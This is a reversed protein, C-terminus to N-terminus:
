SISGGGGSRQSSIPLRVTFAAGAGVGPSQVTISGRHALVLARCIALGLGMGGFREQIETSGQEFADFILSIKECDIGIGTDAVIIQVFDTPVNATSVDIRGGQPTFKIANRLLNWFVQQLRMADGMVIPAVARLHVALQQQKEDADIQCVRVASSLPEHVDVPEYQLSMKGANIRTLDVLDDILRIETQVYQRITQVDRRLAPPLNPDSQLMDAAMVVPSLPTRLEHSVMALFQTKARSASEAALRARRTAAHLAGALVSVVSFVLLRPVHDEAAAMSFRHGRMLLYATAAGSLFTALLGPGIGGYWACLLVAAFFLPTLGADGFRFLLHTLVTAVGVAVVAMGYRLLVQGGRVL